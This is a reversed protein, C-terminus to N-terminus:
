KSKGEEPEHDHDDDEQGDKKKDESMVEWYSPPPDDSTESTSENKDGVQLPIELVANIHPFPIEVTIHVFYDRSVLNSHELSGLDSPIDISVDMSQSSGSNISGTKTDTNEIDRSQKVEREGKTTFTYTEVLKTEVGKLNLSTDNLIEYNFNVKGGPCLVCSEVNAKINVIKPKRSFLQFLKKQEGYITPEMPLRPKIAPVVTIEKKFKKDFEFFGPKEFKIKIYYQIVCRVRYRATRRFYDLSGPISQPLLFNFTHEYLGVPLPPAKDANLIFNEVNVYNESNRFTRSNKQQHNQHDTIAFWGSGNLSVSIKSFVTEQDVAYKIVGNVRSGPVFAGDSPKFLNIECHVGM